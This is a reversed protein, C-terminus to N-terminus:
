QPEQKDFVLLLRVLDARQKMEAPRIVQKALRFLGPLWQFPCERQALRALRDNAFCVRQEDTASPLRVTLLVCEINAKFTALVKGVVRLQQKVLALEAPLTAVQGAGLDHELM